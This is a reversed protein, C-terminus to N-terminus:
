CHPDKRFIYEANAEDKCPPLERRENLIRLAAYVTLRSRRPTGVENDFNLRRRTNPFRANLDADNSGFLGLRGEGLLIGVLQQPVEILTPMSSPSDTSAPVTRAGRPTQPSNFPTRGDIPRTPTQPDNPTSTEDIRTRKPSNVNDEPQEKRKTM